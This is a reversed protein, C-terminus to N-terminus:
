PVSRLTYLRYGAALRRSTARQDLYRRLARSERGTGLVHTVSYKQLIADRVGDSPGQGFFAKVDRGRQLGDPVLPNIHFLAVVKAGFTPIPWGDRPRALVVAGPGALTSAQRAYNLVPSLRRGSVERVRAAALGANHWLGFGLFLALAAPAAYSLWRRALLRSADHYGPTLWLCGWVLALHLYVMALLVFRHGLPMYVLANLGFVALMALLGLPIFLHKRQWLLALACAFGPAALGVADRLLKVDYFLPHLQRNPNANLANTAATKVWDSTSEDQGGGLLEFPSFYPWFHSCAAGAFIAALAYARTRLGAGPESIALLGMGSFALVATLPHVILVIGALLFLGLLRPRTAGSRVVSTMLWFCFWTLALASMSPYAAVSPLIQLQYVNSYHWGDWWTTLMVLLAYLPARRDRFYAGFFCFCGAVFGAMNSCAAVTMAGLADLGFIRAGIAIAVYVPNYRPSQVDSALHPNSPSFPSAILEYLAASHEWYDAGPSFTILRTSSAEIGIWLVLAFGALWYAIVAWYQRAPAFVSILRTLRASNLGLDPRAITSLCVHEDLELGTPPARPGNPRAAPARHTGLPPPDRGATVSETTGKPDPNLLSFRRDHM